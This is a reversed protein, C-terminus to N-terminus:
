QTSLDVLQTKQYLDGIADQPVRWLFGHDKVRGAKESLTFDLYVNGDEAMRTFRLLSPTNCYLLQEFRCGNKGNKQLGVSVSVFATENHKSVITDELVASDYELIEVKQKNIVIRNKKAKIYFGLSDPNNNFSTYLARRDRQKDYYGFKEILQRKDRCALYRSPVRSFLTQLTKGYKTKLEIGMFDAEKSSNQPISLYYELSLGYRGSGKGHVPLYDRSYLRRLKDVLVDVPKQKKVKVHKLVATKLASQYKSLPRLGDAYPLKEEYLVASINQFKFEFAKASRAPHAAALKRYIEAKNIVQGDVQANQLAFYATIAAEIEQDSWEM